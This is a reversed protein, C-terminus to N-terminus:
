ALWVNVAHPNVLVTEHDDCRVARKVGTVVVEFDSRFCHDLQYFLSGLGLCDNVASHRQLCAVVDRSQNCPKLLCNRLFCAWRGIFSFSSCVAATSCGTPLGATRIAPAPEPLVRTSVSRTRQSMSCPTTGRRMQAIVKVFLAAPSSLSRRPMPRSVGMSLSGLTEVMWERARLPIRLFGLAKPNCSLTVGSSSYSWDWNIRFTM